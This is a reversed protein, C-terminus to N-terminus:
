NSRRRLSMAQSVPIDITDTEDKETTTEKIKFKPQLEVWAEISRLKRNAEDALLQNLWSQNNLAYDMADSLMTITEDCIQNLIPANM